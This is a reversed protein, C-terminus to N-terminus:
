HNIKRKRERSTWGRVTDTEWIQIGHYILALVAAMVPLWGLIAGLVTVGAFLDFTAKIVPHMAGERIEEM